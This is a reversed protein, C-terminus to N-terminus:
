IRYLPYNENRNVVERDQGSRVLRLLPEEVEVLGGGTGFGCFSVFFPVFTKIMLDPGSKDREQRGEMVPLPRDQGIEVVPDRVGARFRGVVEDPRNLPHSSAVAEVHEPGSNQEHTMSGM